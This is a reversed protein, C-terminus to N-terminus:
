SLAIVTEDYIDDIDGVIEGKLTRVDPANGTNDAEYMVPVNVLKKVMGLTTDILYLVMRNGDLGQVTGIVTDDADEQLGTIRCEFEGKKLDGGKNNKNGADTIRIFPESELATDANTDESCMHLHTTCNGLATRLTAITYAGPITFDTDCLWAEYFVSQGRPMRAM